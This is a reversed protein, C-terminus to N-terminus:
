FNLVDSAQVVASRMFVYFFLTRMIRREKTASQKDTVATGWPM